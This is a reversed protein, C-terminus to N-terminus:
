VQMMALLKEKLQPWESRVISYYASDRVTGDRGPADARKIGELKGGVREIARRSRENREDTRLAVRYVEWAEFAHQFLLYKCITNCATRQMSGVLWTYGVECVDPTKRAMAKHQMPWNWPAYGYYSTTGVIKNDATIAFPHRDGRARKKLAGSVYLTTEELSAPVNNYNYNSADESAALWLAQADKPELPRLEFQNLSLSFDNPVYM